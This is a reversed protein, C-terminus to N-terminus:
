GSSAAEKLIHEVRIRSQIFYNKSNETTGGTKQLGQGSCAGSSTQFLSFDKKNRSWTLLNVVIQEYNKAAEVTYANKSGDAAFNFVITPEYDIEWKHLLNAKLDLLHINTNSFDRIVETDLGYRTVTAIEYPKDSEPLKLVFDLFSRGVFGNAGTILFRQPKVM